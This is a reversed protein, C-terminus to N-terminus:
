GNFIGGIHLGSLLEFGGVAMIILFLLILILIVLMKTNSELFKEIM